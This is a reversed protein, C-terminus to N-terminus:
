MEKWSSQDPRPCGSVPGAEEGAGGDDGQHGRAVHADRRPRLHGEGLKGTFPFPSRTTPMTWRPAPTSASTSRRTGPGSSRSPIPCPRRPWQVATWRCRARAAAASRRARRSRSGSSSSPTSEPSRAAPREAVEAARYRAPEHHLDAQRGQSLARLRLVPRGADGARRERRGAPGRDRRHDYVPPQPDLARRRVPELPEAGHLRVAEPGGGTGPARRDPDRGALRELPLVNNRVAEIM